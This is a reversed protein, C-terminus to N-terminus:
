VFDERVKVTIHEVEKVVQDHIKQEVRGDPYVTVEIFKNKVTVPEEKSWYTKCNATGGNFPLAVKNLHKNGQGKYQYVEENGFQVITGGLFYKEKSM